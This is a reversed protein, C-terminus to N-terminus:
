PMAKKIKFLFVKALIVVKFVKKNTKNQYHFM